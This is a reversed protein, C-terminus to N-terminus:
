SRGESKCEQFDWPRGYVERSTKGEVEKFDYLVSDM